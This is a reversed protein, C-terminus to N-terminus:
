VKTSEVSQQHISETDSSPLSYYERQYKRGNQLYPLCLQGLVSITVLALGSVLITSLIKLLSFSRQVLFFCKLISTLEFSLFDLGSEGFGGFLIQM